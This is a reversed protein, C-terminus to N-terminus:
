ENKYPRQVEQTLRQLEKISEQVETSGNDKQEYEQLDQMLRQDKIETTVDQTIQNIKQNVLQLNSKIAIVARALQEPGLVFLGIILILVLEGFGIGTFM